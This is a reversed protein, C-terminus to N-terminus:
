EFSIAVARAPAGGCGRLKLPLAVIYWEDEELLAEDMYMEEIVAIENGLLAIHPATGSGPAYGGVSFGDTGVGKAGKDVLWSASEGTLYPWQQTYEKTLGRKKGWGTFLLAIDGRQLRGKDAAELHEPNITPSGQIDRLDLVTGRGQFRELMVFEDITRGDDFFHFPADTHTASHTNFDFREANCNDDCFRTDFSTTVPGHLHWSPCLHYLDQTLDLMRKIKPIM